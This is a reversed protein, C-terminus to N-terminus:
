SGSFFVAYVVVCITVTAFIGHIIIVPRPFHREPPVTVVATPMSSPAAYSRYVGVWRIAMISGLIVVVGLDAVSTWALPDADTVLYFGWVVLGGTGLLAHTSILPIPLRTAATSQFDRDYEMLWIILLILGLSVTAMWTFLAVTDM